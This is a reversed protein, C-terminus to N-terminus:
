NPLKGIRFATDVPITKMPMQASATVVAVLLLLVSVITHKINKM